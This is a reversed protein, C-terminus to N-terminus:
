EWMMYLEKDHRDITLPRMGKFYGWLFGMLDATLVGGVIRVRYGYPPNDEVVVKFGLWTHTGLAVDIKKTKM